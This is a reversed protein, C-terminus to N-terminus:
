FHLHPSATSIARLNFACAAMGSTGPQIGVVRTTRLQAAGTEPSQTGEEPKWTAVHMQQVNLCAGMYM